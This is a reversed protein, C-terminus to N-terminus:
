VTRIRSFIYELNTDKHLLIGDKKNKNKNQWSHEAHNSSVEAHMGLGASWVLDSQTHEAVSFSPLGCHVIVVLCMGKQGM